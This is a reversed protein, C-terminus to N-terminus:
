ILEKLRNDVDEDTWQGIEAYTPTKKSDWLVYNKTGTPYIVQAEVKDGYDAVFNLNLASVEATEAAKVEVKQPATLTIERAM